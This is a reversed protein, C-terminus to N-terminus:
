LVVSKLYIKVRQTETTPCFSVVTLAIYYRLFFKLTHHNKIFVTAFFTM